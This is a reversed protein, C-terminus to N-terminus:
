FGVVLGLSVQGQNVWETGQAVFCGWYDCWVGYDNSPVPTVWWRGDLRLGFRQAQGAMWQAGGGLSFSFRTSTGLGGAKPDFVTIGLGGGLFPRIPIGTPFEQRAGIQFYNTAFGGLDTNLGSVRDFAIGNDQRLYWLEVATYPDAMFSLIGGWNPADNIHLTGAPVAGSATTNFSGGWQYGGFAAIQVRPGHSMERLQAAAPISTISLFLGAAGAVQYWRVHRKM